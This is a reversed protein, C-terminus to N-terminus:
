SLVLREALARAFRLAGGDAFALSLSPECLELELVVPRGDDGRILDVRGYLLPQALGLHAAAAELAALAVAREDQDAERARRVDQTPANVTGDALLLASKRIAHSYAGNFYIMDTEGDRDISALYPQVIVQCGKDLLRGIYQGAEAALARTFRQVDKSYAGVTPKVVLEGAGPHAALFEGLAALPDAGPEVFTSPVVPVGRAALDALYHKDLSWRVVPLPNFLPALETVRECWALFQPLREVYSWPSRLLVADFRSWDVAPDDWACVEVPLGTARCADLLLPMDFDLPLSEADTVMVLTGM